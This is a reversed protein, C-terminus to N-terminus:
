DLKSVLGSRMCRRYVREAVSEPISTVYARYHGRKEKGFRLVGAEQQFLRRITAPSLRWMKAPESVAYHCENLTALQTVTFAPQSRDGKRAGNGLIM